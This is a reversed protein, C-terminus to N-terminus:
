CGARVRYTSRPAGAMLWAFLQGQTTYLPGAFACWPASGCCGCAARGSRPAWRGGAVRGAPGGRATGDIMRGQQEETRERELCCFVVRRTDRTQCRGSRSCCLVRMATACNRCLSSLPSTALPPPHAPWPTLGAGFIRYASATVESRDFISGGVAAGGASSVWGGCKFACHADLTVALAADTHETSCKWFYADFLIAFSRRIHKECEPVPDNPRRAAKM